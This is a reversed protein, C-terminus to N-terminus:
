ASNFLFSSCFFHCGVDFFNICEPIIKIFKNPNARLENLLEEKRFWKIKEVEEEQVTFDEIKKNALAFFWQTFHRHEEDYFHYFSKQFHHNKLGIEEEAEKIINSEYTEGIDNTGAVAPGWKGPDHKKNLKRQALLINGDFNKIWLASIRYIDEQNLTGREKSGIIIDKDDVLIIKEKIM